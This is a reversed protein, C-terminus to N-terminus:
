GSIDRMADIDRDLYYPIAEEWLRFSPWRAWDYLKLILLTAGDMHADVMPGYGFEFTDCFWKTEEQPLLRLIDDALERGLDCAKCDCNDCERKRKRILNYRKRYERVLRDVQPFLTYTVLLNLQYIRDRQDELKKRWKTLDKTIDELILPLKIDTQGARNIDLTYLKDVM